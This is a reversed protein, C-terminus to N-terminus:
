RVQADAADSVLPLRATQGVICSGVGYAVCAFLFLFITNQLTIYLQLGPGGMPPRFISEILGPLILIIDLLIAQMAHYRVYRSFNGNNIIGLYVAFFLILGALPFSYYLRILPDLPLLLQAVQPFQVLFFKGYRLGDFLPIMFPLAAVVRDPIDPGSSRGAAHVAVQRRGAAPTQRQRAALLPMGRLSSSSALVVPAAAGCAGAAPRAPAALAVPRSAGQAAIAGCKPSAGCRSLVAVRM